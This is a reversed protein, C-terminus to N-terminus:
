PVRITAKTNQTTKQTAKAEPQNRQFKTQNNHSALTNQTNQWNSSRLDLQNNQSATTTITSIIWCNHKFNLCCKPPIRELM